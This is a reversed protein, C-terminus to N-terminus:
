LLLLLYRLTALFGSLNDSCLQGEMSCFLLYGRRAVHGERKFKERLHAKGRCLVPRGLRGSGRRKDLTIV